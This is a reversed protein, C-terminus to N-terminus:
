VIWLTVLFWVAFPRNFCRSVKNYRKTPQKYCPFFAAAFCRIDCMNIPSMFAGTSNAYTWWSNHESATKKQRALHHNELSTLLHTLHLEKGTNGKTILPPTTILQRWFCFSSFPSLLVTSLFKFNYSTNRFTFTSISIMNIWNKTETFDSLFPRLFRRSHFANAMRVKFFSPTVCGQFFPSRGQM